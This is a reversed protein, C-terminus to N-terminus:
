HRKFILSTLLHVYIKIPLNESITTDGRAIQTTFPWSPPWCSSSLRFLLLFYTYLYKKWLTSCFLVCMSDSYAGSLIAWHPNNMRSLRRWEASAARCSSIWPIWVATTKAVAIQYRTTGSNTIWITGPVRAAVALTSFFV